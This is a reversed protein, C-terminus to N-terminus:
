SEKQPHLYVLLQGGDGAVAFVDSRSDDTAICSVGGSVLTLVYFVSDNSLDFRLLNHM